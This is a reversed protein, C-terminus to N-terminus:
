WSVPILRITLCDVGTRSAQEISPASAPPTNFLENDVNSLFWVNSVNIGSKEPSLPPRTLIKPALSEDARWEPKISGDNFGLSCVISFKVIIRMNAIIIYGIMAIMASVEVMPNPPIPIPYGLMIRILKMDPIIRTRKMIKM